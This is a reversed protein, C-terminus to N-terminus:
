INSSIKVDCPIYKLVYIILQNCCGVKLVSNRAVKNKYISLKICKYTCKSELIDINLVELIKWKFMWYKM